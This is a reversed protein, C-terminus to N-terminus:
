IYLTYMHSALQIILVVMDDDIEQVSTVSGSFWCFLLLLIILFFSHQQFPNKTKHYSTSQDKDELPNALIGELVVPSALVYAKTM